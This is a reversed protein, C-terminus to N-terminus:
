GRPFKTTVVFRLVVSVTVDMKRFMLLRRATYTQVCDFAHGFALGCLAFVMKMCLTPAQQVFISGVEITRHTPFFDWLVVQRVVFEFRTVHLDVKM